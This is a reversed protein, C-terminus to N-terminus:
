VLFYWVITTNIYKGDNLNLCYEYRKGQVVLVATEVASSKRNELTCSYNGRDTYKLDSITLSSTKFNYPEDRNQIHFKTSNTIESGGDKKWIVKPTPIGNGACSFKVSDTENRTRDL